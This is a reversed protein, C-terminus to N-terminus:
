LDSAPIETRTSRNSEMIMRLQDDAPQAVDGIDSIMISGCFIGNLVPSKRFLLEHMSLPFLPQDVEGIFLFAEDERFLIEVEAPLLEALDILECALGLHRIREELELAVKHGDRNAVESGLILTIKM